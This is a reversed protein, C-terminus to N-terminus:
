AAHRLYRKKRLCLIGLGLLCLTTPEPVQAANYIDTVNQGTLMSNFIAFEDIAGEFKIGVYGGISM